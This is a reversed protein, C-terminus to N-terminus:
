EEAPSRKSFLSWEEGAIKMVMSLDVATRTMM